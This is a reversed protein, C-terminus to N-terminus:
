FSITESKESWVHLACVCAQKSACLYDRMIFVSVALATCPIALQFPGNNIEENIIFTFASLM